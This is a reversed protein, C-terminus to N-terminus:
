YPVCVNESFRSDMEFNCAGTGCQASVIDPSATGYQASVIDPSALEM